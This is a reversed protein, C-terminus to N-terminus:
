LVVGEFVGNNSSIMVLVVLQWRVTKKLVHAVRNKSTHKSARGSAHICYSQSINKAKTITVEYPMLIGAM